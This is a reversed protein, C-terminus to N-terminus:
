EISNLIDSILSQINKFRFMVLGFRIEAFVNLILHIIGGHLFVPTILRFIHYKEVILCTDKAGLLEFTCGLKLHGFFFFIRNKNITKQKQKNVM